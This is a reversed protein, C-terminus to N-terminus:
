RGPLHEAVARLATEVLAAPDSPPRRMEVSVWQDYRRRWLADLASGLGPTERDVPALSPASLHLHALPHSAALTAEVREGNITIAGLDVHHVLAPHGVALVFRRLEDHTTLFDCGYEPPNAEVGITVGHHAAVDGLARFFPIALAAARDADLGERSRNRPSGFVLVRCGLLGGIRVVHTLYDLLQRRDTDDGFLRLDDRGFLLAQMAPIVLGHDAWYRRRDHVAADPVGGLDPWHRTPAFEIGEAGQARLVRAVADDDDPHWAITSVAVRM